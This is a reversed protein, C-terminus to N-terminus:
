ILEDANKISDIICNKNWGVITAAKEELIEPVEELGLPRVLVIPIDYKESAHFSNIVKEFDTCLQVEDILLFNTKGKQYREEVYSHLALATKISDFELLNFNIHILNADKVSEKIWEIFADMLKSKGCRRVGTIVKIDPTGMVNKLKDLYFDREILKM